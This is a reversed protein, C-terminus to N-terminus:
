RRRIWYGAGRLEQVNREILERAEPNERLLSIETTFDKIFIDRDRYERGIWFEALTGDPKEIVIYIGATDEDNAKRSAIFKEYAMWLLAALSAISGAVNLIMIWDVAAKGGKQPDPHYAEIDEARSEVFQYVEEPNMQSHLNALAAKLVIQNSM